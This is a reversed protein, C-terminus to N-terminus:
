SRETPYAGGPGDAGPAGEAPMRRGGGAAEIAKRVATPVALGEMDRPTAWRLAPREGGRVRLPVPGPIRAEHVRLVLTRHTLEREVVALAPGV